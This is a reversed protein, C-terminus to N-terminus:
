GFLLVARSNKMLSEVVPRGAPTPRRAVEFRSRSAYQCTPLLLYLM